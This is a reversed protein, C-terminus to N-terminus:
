KDQGWIVVHHRCNPQTDPACGAQNSRARVLAQTMATHNELNRKCSDCAPYIGPARCIQFDATIMAIGKQAPLLGRWVM